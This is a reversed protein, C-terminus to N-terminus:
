REILFCPDIVGCVIVMRGDVERDKRAFSGIVVAPVPAFSHHGDPRPTGYAQKQPSRVVESGTREDGIM